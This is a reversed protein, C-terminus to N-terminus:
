DVRAHADNVLKGYILTDARITEKYQEPTSAIMEFGLPSLRQVIDPAALVKVIESNLRAIVSNPTGAPAVFGADVRIAYGPVGAEEITPVDKMILTRKPTAVALLRVKGAKVYPLVSPLAALIVAVDGSIVAPVSQAVGKYPIHTMDVGALSKFLEMGLHHVSGNGSSGFPVGPHSKAYDILQRVTQIPLAANAVLYLPTTVALTVPAFDRLPDYPLKPYLSPNISLHGTDAVFLTYGDAPAKKVIEAAIIGGAGPRNDVVVSLGLNQGLRQAIVRAIVDPGGGTGYPVVFRFPRSPFEQAACQTALMSLACTFIAIVTTFRKSIATM